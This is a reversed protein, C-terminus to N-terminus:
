EVEVVMNQFKGSAPSPITEYMEMDIRLPGEFYERVQRRLTEAHEATWTSDPALRIVVHDVAKQVVQHQWHGGVKRVLYALRTSNKRRGDSLYFMPSNKGQVHTLHPLGRGCPCQTKGLTVIDGLAYRVLPSRFNHLTTIYVNGSRGPECPQFNEDLVEIIVNEAHVHLGHGSPCPSALYGAEACSYMNRVPVGFSEEIIAKQEDSLTDSLAQILQLSPLPGEQKLLVALVELNAPYSMLYDPELSRLWQLQRRPDQGIDMLHAPGMEIFGRLPPLWSTSSVGQLFPKLEDGRKGTSRIAAVKGQPNLGCWELDRLYFACWWLNVLNTQFIRTPSGTSGSTQSTKTAVTGKPLKEAIFADVNEQYTRRPLVPIQRFSEPNDFHSSSIGSQAFLNRYYPVNERCHKLLVQLQSFQGRQIIESSLWQSRDLQCYAQWLQSYSADCLIPWASGQISRFRFFDM